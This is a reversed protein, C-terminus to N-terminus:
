SEVGLASPSVDKENATSSSSDYEAARQAAVRSEGLVRFGAQRGLSDFRSSERDILAGRGFQSVTHAAGGVGWQITRSLAGYTSLALGSGLAGAMPTVQKLVLFSLWCALLVKMAMAFSIGGGEASAQMTAIMLLTMMLSAVLVALIAIFAHTCLQALWSECMRTTSKFLLCAIFFPGMGLLVALAVRSLEILFLVYIGVGGTVVFV